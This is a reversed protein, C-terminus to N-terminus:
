FMDNIMVEMTRLDKAMMPMTTILAEPHTRKTEERKSPIITSVPIRIGYALSKIAEARM